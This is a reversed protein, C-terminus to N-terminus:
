ERRWEHIRFDREGDLKTELLTAAVIGCCLLKGEDSIGRLYIIHNADGLQRRLFFTQIVKLNSYAAAIRNYEAELMNSNFSFVSICDEKSLDEMRNRIDDFSEISCEQEPSSTSQNTHTEDLLKNAASENGGDQLNGKPPTNTEKPTDKTLTEPVVSDDPEQASSFVKELTFGNPLLHAALLKYEEENTSVKLLFEKEVFTRRIADFFGAFEQGSWISMSAKRFPYLCTDEVGLLEEDIFFERLIDKERGYKIVITRRM